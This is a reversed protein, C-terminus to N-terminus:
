ASPRVRFRLTQLEDRTARIGRLTGIPDIAVKDAFARQLASKARAQTAGDGRIELHPLFAGWDV